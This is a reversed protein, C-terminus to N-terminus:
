SPNEDNSPEEAKPQGNSGPQFASIDKVPKKAPVKSNGGHAKEEAEAEMIEKSTRTAQPCDKMMHSGLKTPTAFSERCYPCVDRGIAEAAMGKGIDYRSEEEIACIEEGTLHDGPIFRSSQRLSRAVNKGVTIVANPTFDFTFSDHQLTYVELKPRGPVNISKLRGRQRLVSLLEPNKTLRLQVQTAEM